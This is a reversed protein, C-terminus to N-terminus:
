SNRSAKIQDLKDSILTKKAAHVPHGQLFSAASLPCIPDFGFPPVLKPVKKVSNEQFPWGNPTSNQLFTARFEDGDFGAPIRSCVRLAKLIVLAQM